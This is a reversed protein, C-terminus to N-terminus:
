LLGKKRMMGAYVCQGFSICGDGLPYEDSIIMELGRSQIEQAITTRIAENYAVGGSLAVKEIGETRAADAALLAIGRALNYQFSAAIRAVHDPDSPNKKYEDRAKKLLSPTDLIRVGAEEIVLVDWEDPTRGWAVSELRMAPEGDYSKQRCVGLLAAAADLVRGTSTTQVTNFRKAVQQELIKLDTEAWGRESLLDSTEQDPLIGYLMREPFRTALDGGPMLVPKLHAIRKMDPIEGAFIEGGWVTGDSGYGVGDIAIGICPETTTAAIHAIHHQVPVLVAGLEEALQRAYRTSLFQPHLDHAIIRIDPNLLRCLRDITEQLYAFTAPNRVNGVHPSTVCFGAQYLTANSNLEPGVGLISGDGLDRRTRKPAYGRSLRIIREKRIVSDDCRNVIDRNHTLIWDVTGGLRTAITEPDTIMPYGPANASTMILFPANLHAFLLHHLGAYPLMCGLTHLNSVESVTAQDKKDLIVIPCAPSKLIREEEDSVTALTRIVQWPAMIALPQEPRGLRIKLETAQDGTCAIHFGGVGRIAMIAGNDLLSAAERILDRTIEMSRDPSYLFLGPGCTSCVITQAHHRRSMPDTYEGSCAPCLPFEDMATRERDYPLSRIVSYRPGCNVCSTAFYGEYRGNCTFIDNVCETCIAVDPPILGTLTGPVSPSISFSAPAPGALPLIHVSDIVSLLTGQSVREAFEEFRIGWAEISVESGANLVTGCIKLKEALAYVFPRFGVGQVIGRIIIKGQTEM